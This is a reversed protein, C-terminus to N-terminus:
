NKTTMNLISLYSLNIRDGRRGDMWGDMWGDLDSLSLSLFLFLSFSLSLSILSSSGGILLLRPPPLPLPLPLPLLRGVVFTPTPGDCRARDTSLKLTM